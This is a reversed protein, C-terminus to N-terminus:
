RRESNKIKKLNEGAFELAAPIQQPRAPAPPTKSQATNKTVMENRPSKAELERLVFM